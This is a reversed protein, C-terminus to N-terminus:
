SLPKEAFRTYEVGHPQASSRFLKDPLPDLEPTV